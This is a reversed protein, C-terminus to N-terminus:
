VQAQTCASRLVWEGIPVILGSSEAIDIFDNPPILGRQRHNWRLLAELGTIEGTLMDVQPQYELFLEKRSLVQRLGSELTMRGMLEGNMAETFIAFRNTSDERARCLALDSRKMLMESDTGSDPFVSVGVNCSVSLSHGLFTHETSLKAVLDKAAGEVQSLRGVKPVM